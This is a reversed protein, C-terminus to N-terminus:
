GDIEYVDVKICGDAYYGVVEAWGDVLYENVDAWEDVRYIGQMPGGAEMPFLKGGPGDTMTSSIKMMPGHDSEIIDRYFVDFAEGAVIVQECKFKPRGPLNNNIIKDLEKSNGDIELLDTFATSSSGRLKAWKAIDWDMQSSFPAYINVTSGADLGYTANACHTPRGTISKGARTDPYPVVVIDDQGAVHEEIQQHAEIDYVEEAGQDDEDVPPEWENGDQTPPEWEGSDYLGEEEDTSNNRDDGLWEIDDEGYTSFFDDEFIPELQDQAYYGMHYPGASWPGM